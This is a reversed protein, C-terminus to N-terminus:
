ISCYRHPLMQICVQLPREEEGRTTNFVSVKAALTGSYVRFFALMGRQRDFSVQSHASCIPCWCNYAKSNTTAPHCLPMRSLSLACSYLINMEM